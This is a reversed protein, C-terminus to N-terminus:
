KEIEPKISNKDSHRSVSFSSHSHQKRKALVQSM